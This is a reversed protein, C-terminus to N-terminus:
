KIVRWSANRPDFGWQRFSLNNPNEARAQEILVATKALGFNM